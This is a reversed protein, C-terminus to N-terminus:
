ILLVGGLETAGWKIGKLIHDSSGEGIMDWWEEDIFSSISEPRVTNM